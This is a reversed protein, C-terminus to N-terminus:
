EYYKPLPEGHEYTVDDETWLDPNPVPPPADPYAKHIGGPLTLDDQNFDQATFYYNTDNHKFPHARTYSLPEFQPDNYLARLSDLTFPLDENVWEFRGDPLQKQTFRNYDERDFSAVLSLSTPRDDLGLYVHYGEFDITGTFPDETTEAQFGNWRIIIKGPATTVRVRPQQPPGDASYDPVGDGKYWITDGDCVRFEGAYGDGDTDRGPNDYVIQAARANAALHSFDLTNYFREPRRADFRSHARPDQHVKEGGVVALSFTKIDHPALTFPGASLLFYPRSGTAIVGAKPPPHHYGESFHDVATMMQDYDVEGNAMYYYADHDLAFHTIFPFVDDRTSSGLYSRKTPGFVEPSVWWNYNIAPRGGDK